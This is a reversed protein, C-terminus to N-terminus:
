EKEFEWYRKKTKAKLVRERLEDTSSFSLQDITHYEASVCCQDSEFCWPEVGLKNNEKLYIFHSSGDALDGVEIRQSVNVLRQQCLILSCEDCWRLFAYYQMLEKKTLQFYRLLKKQKKKQDALFTELERPKHDMSSYVSLIHTSVLMKIWQSKYNAEDVVRRVQEMDLGHMTFDLPRGEKSLHESQTWDSQGDDHDIIASLTEPWHPPRFQQKMELAIAGALLAHNRQFIIEWGNQLPNVIM